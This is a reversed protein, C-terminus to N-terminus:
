VLSTVALLGRSVYHLLNNRSKRICFFLAAHSFIDRMPLGFNLLDPCTNNITYVIDTLLKTDAEYNM